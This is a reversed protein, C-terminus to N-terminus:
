VLRPKNRSRSPASRTSSIGQSIAPQLAAHFPSTEGLNEPEDGAEFLVGLTAVVVEPAAATRARNSTGSSGETLYVFMSMTVRARAPVYVDRRIKAAGDSESGDEGRLPILVYGDLPQDSNNSVDVRVPVWAGPVYFPGLMSTASLSHQNQAFARTGCLALLCVALLM